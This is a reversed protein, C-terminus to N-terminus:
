NRTNDEVNGAGERQQQPLALFPFASQLPVDSANVHDGATIVGNTVLFLVTDIM